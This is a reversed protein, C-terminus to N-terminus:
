VARFIIQHLQVLIVKWTFYRYFFNSLCGGWYIGLLLNEKFMEWCYNKKEKRNKKENQEKVVLLKGQM